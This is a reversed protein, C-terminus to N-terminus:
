DFIGIFAGQAEFNEKGDKRCSFFVPDESCSICKSYFDINEENLGNNILQKYVFGSLDFYIEENYLNFLEKNEEYKFLNLFEKGVKYCCNRIGPGIAAYLRVKGGSKEKIRNITKKIIELNTSKWGSHVAAIINNNEEYLIIPICDAWTVMLLINKESTFCADGDIANELSYAGKGKKDNTVDIVIDSHIQHPSFIFESNIGINDAFNIRNEKTTNGSSISKRTLAMNGSSPLTFGCILNKFKIQWNPMLIENKFFM